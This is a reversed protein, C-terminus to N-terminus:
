SILVSAIFHTSLPSVMNDEVLLVRGRSDLQSTSTMGSSPSSVPIPPLPIAQEMSTEGGKSSSEEPLAFRVKPQALKTHAGRHEAPDEFLALLSHFIIPRKVLVVGHASSLPIELHTLEAADSHVLFVPPLSRCNECTIFSLLSPSTHLTRADTWILDTNSALESVSLTSDGLTAVFGFSNFLEVYFSATKSHGYIVKVRKSSPLRKIGASPSHTPSSPATPLTVTFTTGEGEISEVDVTGNMRQLLHKVISLGLGTGQRPRTLSTDAQRFPQFLAGRFSRPIGCGSDSVKIIAQEPSGMSVSVGIYGADCFKQANSM